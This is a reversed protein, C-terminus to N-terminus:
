HEASEFTEYKGNLFRQLRPVIKRCAEWTAHAKRSDPEYGFDDCFMAFSERGSRADLMLSSLVDASTPEASYGSGQFFDTSIQRGRYRLTVRYSHHAWDGEPKSRAKGYESTITVKERDCLIQLESKM